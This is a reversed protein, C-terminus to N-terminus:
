SQGRRRHCGRQSRETGGRFQHVAGIGQPFVSPQVLAACGEGRHLASGAVLRTNSGVVDMALRSVKLQERGDADLQAIETIAPVQRLLRIYDFRRQDVAGAAWQPQTTWGIQREIDTVFQTIRQAAAEAKEQQVQFAAQRVERYAFWVDLFGSVVLVLTVLGVLSLVYKRFLGRRRPHAGLRIGSTAAITEAPSLTSAPKVDM